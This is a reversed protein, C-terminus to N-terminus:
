YFVLEMGYYIGNSDQLPICAGSYGSSNLAAACASEVNGMDYGDSFLFQKNSPKSVNQSPSQVQPQQQAPQTQQLSNNQQSQTQNSNSSNENSQEEVVPEQSKVQEKEDEKEKKPEPDKKVKLQITKKSINGFEDKAQIQIKYKGPKEISGPDESLRLEIDESKSYNDKVKILSNINFDKLESLKMEVIKEDLTIKPGEIDKVEIEKEFTHQEADSTIYTVHSKGLKKTDVDDCSVQWNGIIIMNDDIMDETVPDRGISEILILPSDDSGYNLIMSDKFHLTYDTKQTVNLVIFIAILLAVSSLIIRLLKKPDETLTSLM